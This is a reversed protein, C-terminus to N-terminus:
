TPLRKNRDYKYWGIVAGVSSGVSSLLMGYSQTLVDYLISLAGCLGLSLRQSSGKRRSAAFMDIYVITLPLLHVTLWGIAPFVGDGIHKGYVSLLFPISMGTVIITSVATVVASSLVDKGFLSFKEPAEGKHLLIYFKNLALSNLNIFVGTWNGGIGYQVCAASCKSLNIKKMAEANKMGIQRFIILMGACIGGANAILSAIDKPLFQALLIFAAATGLSFFLIAYSSTNEIRREISQLNSNM